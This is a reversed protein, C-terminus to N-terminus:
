LREIADRYGEFLPMPHGLDRASGLIDFYFTRIERPDGLAHSSTRKVFESFTFMWRVVLLAVIKGVWSRSRYLGLEPYENLNLGRKELLGLCEGLAGLARKGAAPDSLLKSFSGAEVLSPWLGGTVAYQTWLYPLIKHHVPCPIGAQDLCTKVRHVLADGSPNVPGIDLAMLAGVM